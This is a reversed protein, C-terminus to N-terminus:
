YRHLLDQLVIDVFNANKLGSMNNSLYVSPPSSYFPIKYGDRIIDIIVLYYFRLCRYRFSYVFTNAKLRDKVIITTECQEQEFYDHTFTQTNSNNQFDFNDYIYEDKVFKHQNEM